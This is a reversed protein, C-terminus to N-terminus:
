ESGPGLVDKRVIVEELSGIGKEGEPRSNQSERDSLDKLDSPLGDPM